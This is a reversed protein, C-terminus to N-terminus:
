EFGFSMRRGGILHLHLHDVTQGADPGTNIVVRFGNKDLGQDCAIAPVISLMYGLIDQHNPSLSLMSAIHINPIILIHTPAVPRIDWFATVLDDQHVIRAPQRGSAISCFICEEM